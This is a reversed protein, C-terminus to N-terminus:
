CLLSRTWRDGPGHWVQWQQIPLNYTVEQWHRQAEYDGFMPPKGAGACFDNPQWSFSFWKHDICRCQLGTLKSEIISINVHLKASRRGSYSNLSVGWRVVVALLVSISVSSWTEMVRHALFLVKNWVYAVIVAENLSQQLGNETCTM